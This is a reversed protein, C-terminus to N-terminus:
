PGARRKLAAPINVDGLVARAAAYYRKAEAARNTEWAYLAMAALARGDQYTVGLQLLEYLTQEAFHGWPLVISGAGSALAINVTDVDAAAPRGNIAGGTRLALNRAPLTGKGIIAILRTKLEVLLQLEDARTQIRPRLDPDTTKAALAAVYQQAREFNFTRVLPDAPAVISRAAADLQQQRVREADAQKKDFDAHVTKIEDLRAEVLKPLVPRAAFNTLSGTLIIEAEVFKNSQQLSDVDTMIQKIQALLVPRDDPQDPQETPVVAVM